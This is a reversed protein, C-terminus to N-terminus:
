NSAACCAGCNVTCSSPDVVSTVERGENGDMHAFSVSPMTYLRARMLFAGVDGVLMGRHLQTLLRSVSDAVRPVRSGCIGDADANTVSLTTCPFPDCTFVAGTGRGSRFAANARSCPALRQTLLTKVGGGCNGVAHANTEHLPISPVHFIGDDRAFLGRNLQQGYKRRRLKGHM